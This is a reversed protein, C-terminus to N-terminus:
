ELVADQREIRGNRAGPEVHSLRQLADDHTPCEGPLMGLRGLLDDVPQLLGYVSPILVWRRKHPVALSAQPAFASTKTSKTPRPSSDHM